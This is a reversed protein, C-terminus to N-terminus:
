HQVSIINLHYKLKGFVMESVLNFILNRREVAKVLQLPADSTAGLV